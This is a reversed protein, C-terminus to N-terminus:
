SAEVVGFDTHSLGAGDTHSLGVGETHNLGDFLSHFGWLLAAQKEM